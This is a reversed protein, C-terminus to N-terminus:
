NTNTERKENVKGNRSIVYVLIAFVVVIVWEQGTLYRNGASSDSM